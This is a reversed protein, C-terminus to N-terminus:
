MLPGDKAGTLYISRLINKQVGFLHGSAQLDQMKSIQQRTLTLYHLWYTYSYVDTKSLSQYEEHKQQTAHWNTTWYVQEQHWRVCALWM